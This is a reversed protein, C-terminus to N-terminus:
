EYFFTKYKVKKALLENDPELKLAKEWYELAKDPEGTMFLIDGYHYYLDASVDDNAEAKEIASSQYIKANQYDGKKFMIWAYTDLFTYNDPSSSISEKSMKEAKDIDGGNEILFYAYNNLAMSNLPFFFLANEYARYTNPLDKTMYYTDGILNFLTSIKVANDYDLTNRVSTDTISDAVNISPIIQNIKDSYINIAKDYEKNLAYASALMTSMNESPEIYEAARNYTAIADPYKDAAVQYTMLQTWFTENEPELDIAYSIQEEAKSLNGKAASYRASLDLVGPEHSYQNSLVNFLYDGRTTDSQDIILNQLYTALLSTKQDMDFDELLLAEYIKKDYGVSDNHSKYYNALALKATGSLPNVEEGKTYYYLASDAKEAYDFVSGKIVYYYAESPNSQLLANAENLAGITDRYALNYSIKRTTLQPSKGEILEYKNLTKLAADKNSNAMYAEALSLLNDTKNPFLSDTRKYLEIAEDLHDLRAAVYAYYQTEDYDEPYADIFPRMLKLSSVMEEKTQFTDVNLMMRESGYASAAEVYGPDALYSHKYMEYAEDNKGENQLRVGEMYYYRAKKAGGNDSSATAIAVTAIAAM